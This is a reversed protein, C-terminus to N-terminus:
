EKKFWRIRWGEVTTPSQERLFTLLEGITSPDNSVHVKGPALQIKYSGIGLSHNYLALWNIFHELEM